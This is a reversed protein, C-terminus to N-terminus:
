MRRPPVVAGAAPLATQPMRGPPGMMQRPPAPRAGPPTGAVRPGQSPTGAVGPNGPVGPAGGSQMMKQQQAMNKLSLQRTTDQIHKFLTGHLDGNEQMFKQHSMLHKQDMDFMNVPMAHGEAMLQNELEPDMSLQHRMDVLCQRAVDPGFISSAQYEFISGLRLEFGEQKLQDAMGRMVNIFATGNQQMAVNMRMQSAGVWQFNYQTRNRLPPVDVMEAMVGLKGFQRITLDRDRFQHDMDVVWEVVDCLMADLVDVDEATTLLDVQQEMAVEAQNRKSKGGSQQPLMAPSVNLSQFILQRADLVRTTGRGSLDPFVIIEPKTDTYDWIAGKAIVLPANGEQAKRTIIPMASMHDVDARENAADNSEYQLPALSEIQSKGKFVGAQKEIPESLLPCRDNWHPNRKAGLAERSLSYWTKCLRWEGEDEDFDGEEDLPLKQWVEFLIAHKGRSKIGVARALVKEQDELGQMEPSVSFVLPLEGDEDKPAGDGLDTDLDEEDVLKKFGEKSYRRVVTVSGGVELAEEVSDATAPLVLVDADHIVEFVPRGEVIDEEKIDVLDPGGDTAEGHTERSVISRTITQWGVYLNYQGEILGNRIVPKLVNTKFKARKIYHNVLSLVEYPQQGDTPTCEVYRGIQPMLQNGWRTGIAKVADHITPVYIEAEGNYYGNDDHECNYCNWWDELRNSRDTQDQFGRAIGEFRKQLWERCESGKKGLLDDDRTLLSPRTTLARRQEEEEEPDPAAGPDDPPEAALAAM